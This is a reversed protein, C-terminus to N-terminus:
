GAENPSIQPQQAQGLNQLTQMNDQLQQAEKGQSIALLRSEIQYQQKRTNLQDVKRQLKLNSKQTRQLQEIQYNTDSDIADLMQAALDLAQDVAGLAETSFVTMEADGRFAGLDVTQPMMALEGPVRHNGTLIETTTPIADTKGPKFELIKEVQNDDYLKRKGDPQCPLEGYKEVAKDRWKAVAQPSVKYAKALDALTKM